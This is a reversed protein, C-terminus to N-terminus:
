ALLHRGPANRSGRSGGSLSKAADDPAETPSHNNSAVHLNIPWHKRKGSEAGLTAAALASQFEKLAWVAGGDDEHAVFHASSKKVRLVEFRCHIAPEVIWSTQTWTAALIM